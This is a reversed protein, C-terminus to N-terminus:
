EDDKEWSSKIEGNKYIINSWIEGNHYTMSPGNLKGNKYTQHEWIIGDSYMKTDGHLIDNIYNEEKKLLPKFTDTDFERWVGDKKDNKYYGDSVIKNEDYYSFRRWYGNREDERYTYEINGTKHMKHNWTWVGDKKGNKYNGKIRFELDPINSEEIISQTNQNWTLSATFDRPMYQIFPGHLIDDKFNMEYRLDDDNLDNFFKWCGTKMENIVYGVGNNDGYKYKHEFDLDRNRFDPHNQIQKITKAKDSTRFDVFEKTKNMKQEIDNEEDIEIDIPNRFFERENKNTDKFFNKVAGLIGHVILIYKSLPIDLNFTKEFYKNLNDFSQGQEREDMLKFINDGYNKVSAEMADYDYKKEECYIKILQNFILSNHKESFSEETSKKLFAILMCELRFENQPDAGVISEEFNMIAYTEIGYRLPILQNYIYIAKNEITTLDYDM